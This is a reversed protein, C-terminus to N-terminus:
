LEGPNQVDRRKRVLREVVEDAMESSTGVCEDGRFVDMIVGEDTLLVCLTEEVLNGNEDEVIGCWYRAVNGDDRIEVEVPIETEREVHILTRKTM